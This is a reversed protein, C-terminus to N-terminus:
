EILVNKTDVKELWDLGDDGSTTILDRGPPSPYLPKTIDNVCFNPVVLWAGRRAPTALTPRILWDSFILSPKHVNSGVNKSPNHCGQEPSDEMKPFIPTKPFQYDIDNETPNTEKQTMENGFTSTEVKHVDTGEIKASSNNAADDHEEGSV